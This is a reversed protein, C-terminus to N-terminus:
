ESLKIALWSKKIVNKRGHQMHTDIKFVNKTMIALSEYSGNSLNALMYLM